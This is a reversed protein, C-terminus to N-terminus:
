VTRKIQDAELLLNDISDKRKQRPVEIGLKRARTKYSAILRPDVNFETALEQNTLHCNKIFTKIQKRNLKRM